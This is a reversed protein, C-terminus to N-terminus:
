KTIEPQANRTTIEPKETSAVAESKTKSNSGSEKSVITETKDRQESVEKSAVMKSETYYKKSPMGRSYMPVEIKNWYAEDRVEESTEIDVSEVKSSSLSDNSSSPAGGIGMMQVQGNQLSPRIWLGAVAILVISWGIFMKKAQMIKLKLHNFSTKIQIKFLLNNSGRGVV